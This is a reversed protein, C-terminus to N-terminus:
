PRCGPRGRRDSRGPVYERDGGREAARGAGRRRRTGPHGNRPTRSGIARRLDPGSGRTDGEKECRGVVAGNWPRIRCGAHRLVDRLKGSQTGGKGVGRNRPRPWETGPRPVPEPGMVREGRPPAGLSHPALAFPTAGLHAGSHRSRDRSVRGRGQSVSGLCGAAPGRRSRHPELGTTTTAVVMLAPARKLVVDDVRHGLRVILATAWPVANLLQRRDLTELRVEGAEALIAAAEYSYNVSEANLIRHATVARRAGDHCRRRNYGCERGSGTDRSWRSPTAGDREPM